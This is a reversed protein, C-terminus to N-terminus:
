NKMFNIDVCMLYKKNNAMTFLKAYTECLSGTAASIYQYSKYIEGNFRMGEMYYKKSSHNDGKKAPEFELDESVINSNMVTDSVQIGEEDLLYVCEVISEKLIYNELELNISKLERIGKTIGEIFKNAREVVIEKDLLKNNPSGKLIFFNLLDKLETIESNLNDNNQATEKAFVANEEVKESLGEVIEVMRRLADTQSTTDSLIVESRQTINDVSYIISEFTKATKDAIKKSEDVKDKTEKILNTTQEVAQATQAALKNIETAVVAFGKGAEGARAAEISANLALLGTQSSIEQIMEVVMNIDDSAKAVDEMSDLMNSLYESGDRSNENTEELYTSIENINNVSIEFVGLINQIEASLESINAAEQEANNAVKKTKESTSECIVTVNRMSNNIKYFVRNLSVIIKNLANKIPIFDGSFNDNKPLSVTLDGISVHSLIESIYSIYQNLIKASENLDNMIPYLQFSADTEIDISLDGKAFRGTYLGLNIVKM